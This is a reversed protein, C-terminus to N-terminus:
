LESSASVYYNLTGTDTNDSDTTGSFDYEASTPVASTDGSSAGSTSYTETLIDDIDDDGIVSTFYQTKISKIIKQEDIPRYMYGKVTLNVSGNVMRTMDETQDDTFDTSVGAMEVQVNREINLFSFEKIRLHLSPNFYPLINEMIQSYDELSDTRIFLTYSFNYPSPQYDETFASQNDLSITNNYFTRVENAGTARDGDYDIGNLVLALRPIQLFYKKNRESERRIHQFKEQPAFMVPVTVTKIATNNKDYKKITIDNFMDLLAITINKITRPYYYTSAM